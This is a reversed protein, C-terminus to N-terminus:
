FCEAIQNYLGVAESYKNVDTIKLLYLSGICKFIVLETSIDPSADNLESLTINEVAVGIRPEKGDEEPPQFMEITLSGDFKIKYEDYKSSKSSVYIIACRKEEVFEIRTEYKHQPDAFKEEIRALLKQSIDNLESACIMVTICKKEM